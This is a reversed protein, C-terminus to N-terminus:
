LAEFIENWLSIKEKSHFGKMWASGETVVVKM